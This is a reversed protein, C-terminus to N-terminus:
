EVFIYRKKGEAQGHTPGPNSEVCGILLLMAIVIVPRLTSGLSSRIYNAGTSIGDNNLGREKFTHHGSFINHCGISCRWAEITIM